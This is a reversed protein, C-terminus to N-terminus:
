LVDSHDSAVSGAQTDGAAKQVNAANAENGGGLKRGGDKSADKSPQEPQQTSNPKQPANNTTSSPQANDQPLDKRAHQEKAQEQNGKQEQQGSAAQGPAKGARCSALDNQSLVLDRELGGLKVQLDHSVHLEDKIRQETVGQEAKAQAMAAELEEERAKCDREKHSMSVELRHVQGRYGELMSDLRDSQDRYQGVERRLAVVANEKANMEQEMFNMSSRLHSAEEQVRTLEDKMNGNEISAQEIVQGRSLFGFFLMFSIVGFVLSLLRDWDVGGNRMSKPTPLISTSRRHPRYGGPLTDTPPRGALMSRM